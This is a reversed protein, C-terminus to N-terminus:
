PQSSADKKSDVTTTTSAALGIDLILDLFDQRLGLTHLAHGNLDCWPSERPQHRLYGLSFRSSGDDTGDEPPPYVNANHYHAQKPLSSDGVVVFGTFDMSSEMRVDEAGSDSSSWM